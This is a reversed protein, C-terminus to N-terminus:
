NTTYQETLCLTNLILATCFFYVITGKSVLYIIQIFIHNMFM